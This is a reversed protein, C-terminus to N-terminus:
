PASVLSEFFSDDLENEEEDDAGPALKKETRQVGFDMNGFEEDEQSLGEMEQLRKPMSVQSGKNKLGKLAEVNHAAKAFEKDLRAAQEFAMLAPELKGWKIFGLGMNFFVRALVRSDSSVFSIASKYLSLGQKHQEHRIAMIAAGNFISALEQPNDIQGLFKMADNVKDQLLICQAKGVKASLLDKDLKLAENFKGLAAETKNLNILINGMDVLRDVNHPSILWAEELIKQAKDFEGRKMLCRALLHQTRLDDRHTAYLKTMWSEADQYRGLDILTAGMELSARINGPEAECLDQLVQEAADLDGSKRMSALKRFAQRCNSSMTSFHLLENLNKVIQAKSIEGTHIQMVNFENAVAIVREALDLAIFYIPRTDIRYPGQAARLVKIVAKEGQEWDVVLLNEPNKVLDECCELLSDCCNVLTIGYSKLERVLVTRVTMRSVFLTAGKIPLDKAGRPVQEKNTAFDFAKAAGM